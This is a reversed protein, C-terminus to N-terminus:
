PQVTQATVAAGQGAAARVAGGAVALLAEAGAADTGASHSPPPGGRAASLRPPMALTVTSSPSDTSAKSVPGALQRSSAAACRRM